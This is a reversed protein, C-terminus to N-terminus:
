GMNEYNCKNKKKTCLHEVAQAVGETRKARTIKSIRDQKEGFWDPGEDEQKLSRSNILHSACVVLM